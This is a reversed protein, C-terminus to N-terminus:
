GNGNWLGEPRSHITRTVAASTVATMGLAHNTAIGPGCRCWRTPKM